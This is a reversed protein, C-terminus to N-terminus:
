LAHGNAHALRSRHGTEVSEVLGDRFHVLTRAFDAM